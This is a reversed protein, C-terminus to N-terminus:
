YGEETYVTQIKSDKIVERLRGHELPDYPEHEENESKRVQSYLRLPVFDDTEEDDSEEDEEEEDSEETEEKEDSDDDESEDKEEVLAAARNTDNEEVDATAEDTDEKVPIVEDNKVNPIQQPSQKTSENFPDYVVIPNPPKIAPM